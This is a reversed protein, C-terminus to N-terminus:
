KGLEARLQEHLARLDTTEPPGIWKGDPGRNEVGLTGTTDEPAYGKAKKLLRSRAQTRASGKRVRPM